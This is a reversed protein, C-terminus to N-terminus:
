HMDGWSSGSEISVRLPVRLTVAKEMVEKVIKSTKELDDPSVEFILEDHVQLILRADLQEHSLRTTVEIMAKKMIDAASGQIPTNVAIRQAGAQETRNRSSIGSVIREHGLMTSVKGSEQAQAVTRDIFSRIGSYREFYADIFQQAQQRPIDLERSLRFASMGYMVGFNITKAIRRQQESVDELPVDFILSGTHRHVDIGTLFAEKLGPDDAFHALVVLEIQAYDASLFLKGEEPVFASRIM